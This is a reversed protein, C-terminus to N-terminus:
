YRRLCDAVYRADSETLTPCMPLSLCRAAVREANPFDGLQYPKMAPLQHIAAPYHIGTEIGCGKLYNQLRDRDETQIVYLHYVHKAGAAETPLEISAIGSLYERYWGALRRRAETWGDIYKMKVQLVAAQLTDLRSCQGVMLHEYKKLGGHKALMSARTTFARVKSVIAGGDGFAGLNKGPFFSFTAADGFFGVGRDNWRAGHAQAADELVFASHTRAIESIKDMPAMQGYLHVPVILRTRNSIARELKQPDMLHTLPDVDVLKPVFGALIVAEITAVFTIAPLIAESQPEGASMLGTLSMARCAIVLADTGNGTGVATQGSGVWEAFTQEFQSVAPGGIFGASDLVNDMAEQFESRHDQYLKKLNLFPVTRNPAVTPTTM